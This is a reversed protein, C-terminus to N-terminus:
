LGTGIPAWTLYLTRTKVMHYSLTELIKHCLKMGSSLLPGWLRTPSLPASGKFPTIKGSNAQRVYFHNCTPVSMSCIMVLVPSRSHDQVKFIKTKLSKKPSKQICFLSNQCFPHLYVLIEQSCDQVVIFETV